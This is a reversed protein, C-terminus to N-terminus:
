NANETSNTKKPVWPDLDVWREYSPIQWRELKHSINPFEAEIKQRLQEYMHNNGKLNLHLGDELVHKHTYETLNNFYTHLDLVPLGLTKATDVCARAYIGAMANSHAVMGKMDGKYKDAHKQQVEDDVFPPTIFLVKADPAM